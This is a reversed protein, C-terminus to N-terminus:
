DEDDDEEGRETLEERDAEEQAMADEFASVDWFRDVAETLLAQLDNPDLAEVEVQVLQGYRAVFGAARSDTAKGPAPTLNYAAIQEPLVAVRTVEDFVDSRVDFDRLIDEGSPDFDGVYLLVKKREDDELDDVVDDVYTQSSYGRLTVVPIGRDNFWSRVLATLTAKEVGIYIAYPQEETRDRRYVDHLWARAEEPSEFSLPRSITRGLDVLAPFWGDRRAAATRASLTKYSTDTNALTGDAVLRYFLQRLTVGTDYSRVIDAAHDLVPEWQVRV